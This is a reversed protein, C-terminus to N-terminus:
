QTRRCPVVVSLNDLNCHIEASREPIRGFLAVLIDNKNILMVFMSFFACCYPLLSSFLLGAAHMCRRNLSHCSCLMEAIRPHCPYIGSCLGRRVAPAKFMVVVQTHRGRRERGADICGRDDVRLCLISEVEQVFCLGRAPPRM